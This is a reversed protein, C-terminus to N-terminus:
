RDNARKARSVAQATATDSGSGRRGIYEPIQGRIQEELRCIFQVFPSPEGRDKSVGTSLGANELIASLSRVWRGWEQGERQLNEDDNGLDLKARRLAGQLNDLQGRTAGLGDLFAKVQDGLPRAGRVRFYLGLKHLILYDVQQAAESSSQRRTLRTIETRLNEAHESIADLASLAEALPAAASEMAILWLYTRTADEIKTKLDAPLKKRGFISRIKPWDRIEFGPPEVGTTVPLRKQAVM